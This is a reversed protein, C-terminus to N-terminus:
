NAANELITDIVYLARCVQIIQERDLYGLELEWDLESGSITVSVSDDYMDDAYDIEYTRHEFVVESLRPERPPKTNTKTPVPLSVGELTQTTM